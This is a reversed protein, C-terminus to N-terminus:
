VFFRSPGIRIMKCSLSIVEYNNRKLVKRFTNKEVCVRTNIGRVKQCNRSNVFKSVVNDIHKIISNLIGISFMKGRIIEVCKNFKNIREQETKDKAQISDKVM